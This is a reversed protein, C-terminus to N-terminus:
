EVHLSVLTTPEFSVGSKANLILKTRVVRLESLNSPSLDDNKWAQERYIQLAQQRVKDWREQAILHPYFGSLARSTPAPIQIVRGERTIALLQYEVANEASHPRAFM